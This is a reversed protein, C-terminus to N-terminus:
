PVDCRLRIAEILPRREYPADLREGFVVFTINPSVGIKNIRASDNAERTLECPLFPVRLSALVACAILPRCRCADTAVPSSFACLYAIAGIQAPKRAFHQVHGLPFERAPAITSTKIRAFAPFGIPGFM